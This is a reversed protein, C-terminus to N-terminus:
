GRSRRFALGVLGAVGALLMPAPEPVSIVEVQLNDITLTPAQSASGQRFNAASVFSPEASTTSDWTKTVYSVGAVDVEFTDNLAGAVFTWYEDVHYTQNLNLVTTGPTTTAGTGSTAALTLFYGGGPAAVAGLRQFFFSTTGAPDSLHSFYDGTLVASLNLDMSTHLVSGAANAVSASFASYADQGTTTLAAQNGSVQLPNVVSSGTITWNGGVNPTTGLLAQNAKNFDDSLVTTSAFGTSSATLLVALIAAPLCRKVPNMM